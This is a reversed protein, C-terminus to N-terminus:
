FLATCIHCSIQQAYSHWQFINGFNGSQLYFVYFLQFFLFSVVAKFQHSMNLCCKYSETITSFLHQAQQAGNIEEVNNANGVLVVALLLVRKACREILAFLRELCHKLLLVGFEYEDGCRPMQMHRLSHLTHAMMAM